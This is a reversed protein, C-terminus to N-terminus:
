SADLDRAREHIVELIHRNLMDAPRKMGTLYRIVFTRAAQCWLAQFDRNEILALAKDIYDRVEPVFPLLNEGNPGTFIPDLNHRRLTEGGDAKLWPEAFIPIGIRRADDTLLSVAPKGAMMAQILTHGGPFPFSDLYLDIANAYLKTDVWGVFRCRAALGRAAIRGKITKRENQGSWIFLIEPHKGMIEAICDWYADNDIKEERGIVGALLTFPATLLERRIDEIRLMEDATAPETIEPGFLGPICRWSRGKLERTPEFGGLTLYGDIHPLHLAHYKQSWWIQVPAVRMAIFFPFLGSITGLSVWVDIGNEALHRRLWFGIEEIVKSKPLKYAPIGARVYQEVLADSTTESYYLVPQVALDARAALARTYNFLNRTHALDSVMEAFFAVKRKGVSPRVNWPMPSRLAASASIAKYATEMAPVCYREYREETDRVKQFPIYLMLLDKLESFREQEGFTRLMPLAIEDAWRDATQVDGTEVATQILAHNFSYNEPALAVTRWLFDVAKAPDGLRLLTKGINYLALTNHPAQAVVAEFHPLAETFLDQQFLASGLNGRADLDGPALALYTRYADAAAASKHQQLLALAYIKHTLLHASDSKLIEVACTEAEAYKGARALEPLKRLLVHKLREAAEFADPAQAIIARYFREALDLQGVDAHRGAEELAQELTFTQKAM